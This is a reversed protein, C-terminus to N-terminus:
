KLCFPRCLENMKSAMDWVLVKAQVGKQLPTASLRFTINSSLKTQQRDIGIVKNDADYIVLIACVDQVEEEFNSVTVNSVFEENPLIDDSEFNNVIKIGEANVRVVDSETEEGIIGHEDIPVVICKIYKGELDKTIKLSEKNADKVNEYGSDSLYSSYWKFETNNENYNEGKIFDYEVSLTEGIESIGSIEVNQAKPRKPSYVEIYDVYVSTVNTGIDFRIRSINSTKNRFTNETEPVIAREGNIFYAAKGENLNLVLEIEYWQMASYTINPNFGVNASGNNFVFRGDNNLLIQAAPLVSTDSVGDAYISLKAPSTKAYVKTKVIVTDELPQSLTKAVSFGGDSSVTRDILLTKGNGGDPATVTSISGYGSNQIIGWGSVTGDDFDDEIIKGPSVKFPESLPSSVGRNGLDDVPTVEFFLYMGRDAKQILYRDSGQFIETKGLGNENSCRYWKFECNGKGAGIPSEFTFKAQVENETEDIYEICGDKAVPKVPVADKVALTQTSYIKKGKVGTKNTPQVSCSIYKGIQAASPYYSSAKADKIISGLEGEVDSEYWEYVAEGKEGAGNDTYDFVAKLESEVEADGEIHANTAIPPLYIKFDDFYLNQKGTPTGSSKPVAIRFQDISSYDKSRVGDKM